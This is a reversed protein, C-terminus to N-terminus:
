TQKNDDLVVNRFYTPSATPSGINKDSSIARLERDTKVADTHFRLATTGYDSLM